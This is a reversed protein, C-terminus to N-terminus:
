NEHQEKLEVKACTYPKFYVDSQWDYFGDTHKIEIIKRINVNGQIIDLMTYHSGGNHEIVFYCIRPNEKDLYCYSAGISLEKKHYSEIKKSIKTAISNWTEVTQAPRKKWNNM